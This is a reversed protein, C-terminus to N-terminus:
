GRWRGRHMAVGAGQSSAPPPTPSDCGAPSNKGRPTRAYGGCAPRGTGGPRVERKAVDKEGFPVQLYLRDGVVEGIGPADAPAAQESQTQRVHQLPRDRRAREVIHRVRDCADPDTLRMMLDTPGNDSLLNLSGHWLVTCDLVVVKGPKLAEM